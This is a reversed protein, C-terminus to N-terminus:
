ARIQFSTSLMYSSNYITIANQIGRVWEFRGIFIRWISHNWQDSMKQRFKISLLNGGSVFTDYFVNVTTIFICVICDSNLIQVSRVTNNVYKNVITALRCCPAVRLMYIGKHIYLRLHRRNSSQNGYRNGCRYMVVICTLSYFCQYKVLGKQGWCCHEPSIMYISSTM